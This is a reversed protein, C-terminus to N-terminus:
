PKTPAKLKTDLEDLAFGEAANGFQTGAPLAADIEGAVSEAFGDAFDPGLAM